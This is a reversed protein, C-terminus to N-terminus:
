GNVGAAFSFREEHDMILLAGDPWLLVVDDMSPYWLDDFNSIVVSFPMEAGVRNAPWAVLVPQESAVPLAGLWSRVEAETLRSVDVESANVRSEALIEFSGGLRDRV